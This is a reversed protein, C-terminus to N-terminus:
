FISFDTSARFIDIANIRALASRMEAAVVPELFREMDQYSKIHSSLRSVYNLINVRNQDDNPPLQWNYNVSITLAAPLIFPIGDASHGPVNFQYLHANLDVLTCTRGPLDWGRHCVEAKDGKKVLYVENPQTNFYRFM